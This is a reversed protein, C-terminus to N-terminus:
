LHSVRNFTIGFGTKEFEYDIADGANIRDVHVAASEIDASILTSVFTTLAVCAQQDYRNPLYGNSVKSLMRFLELDVHLRMDVKKNLKFLISFANPLLTVANDGEVVGLEFKRLLRFDSHQAPPKIVIYKNLHSDGNWCQCARILMQEFKQLGTYQTRDKLFESVSILTDLYEAYEIDDQQREGGSRFFDLRRQLKCLIAMEPLDDVESSIRSAVWDPLDENFVIKM